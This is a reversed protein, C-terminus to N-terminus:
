LIGRFESTAPGKAQTFPRMEIDAVCHWVRPAFNKVKVVARLHAVLRRGQAVAIQTLRSAVAEGWAAQDAKATAGKAQSTSAGVNGHVHIWGGAPKLAKVANPWACDSSPILGLLIRDAVSRPIAGHPSSSDALRTTLRDGVGNRTASECLCALADPNWDFALVRAVKAHVLLPLTFYGIGAFLDVVTEGAAALRAVRLKETINGRSFMVRTVDLWYTVGNDKVHTWGDTAGAGDGLLLKVRSQRTGLASVQAARAVEEVVGGAARAIVAWVPAGRHPHQLAGRLPAALGAPRSVRKPLAGVAPLPSATFWDPHHMCSRPIYLVTGLREIRRPCDATALSVAEDRPKGLTGEAFAVLADYVRRIEPSPSSPMGSQVPKPPGSPPSASSPSRPSASSSAAAPASVSASPAAACPTPSVTGTTGALLTRLQASQPPAAWSGFAFVVGGGGATVLVRTQPPAEGAVLSDARGSAILSAGVLGPRFSAGAMGGLGDAIACREWAAAEATVADLSLSLTGDDGADEAVGGFIILQGSCESAGGPAWTCGHAFRRASHSLHHSGPEWSCRVQVWAARHMSTSDLPTTRLVWVDSLLPTFSGSEGPSGSPSTGSSSLADTWPDAARGGHLVVTSTGPVECMAAAFRPAPSSACAISQVACTGSKVDPILALTDGLVGGDADRGGFVIVQADSTGKSAITASCHAYRPSIVNVDSSGAASAGSSSPPSLRTWRGDIADSGASMPSLTLLWADGMPSGPGARGGILIVSRCDGQRWRALTHRVRPAPLGDSDPFANVAICRPGIAAGPPVVAVFTDNRKAYAVASKAQRHGDSVPPNGGFGGFVVLANCNRSISDMGSDAGLPIEVAAGACWLRLPASDPGLLTGASGGHVECAKRAVEITRSPPLLADSGASLEPAPQWTPLHLRSQNQVQLEGLACVRRNLPRAEAQAEACRPDDTSLPVAVTSAAPSPSPEAALPLSQAVISPLAMKSQSVTCSRASRPSPGAVATVLEDDKPLFRVLSKQVVGYRERAIEMVLSAMKRDNRSLRGKVASAMEAVAEVGARLVEDPLTAPQRALVVALRHSVGRLLTAAARVARLRGRWAPERRLSVAETVSMAPVHTIKAPVTALGLIGSASLERKLRDVRAANARFLANAHVTLAPVASEPMVPAGELVLPCAMSNSTTRVQVQVRDMRKGALVIGSERFGTALAIRHLRCAAEVSACLVHLIFPEAKLFAQYASSSSSSGSAAAAGTLAHSTASVGSDTGWSIESLPAGCQKLARAIESAAVERHEVMLWRGPGKAGLSDVPMDASKADRRWEAFVSIRGSCSSTTVFDAHKNIEAVLDAIPADVCGKPSKDTKSSELEAVIAAKSGSFAAM